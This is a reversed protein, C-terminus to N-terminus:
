HRHGNAQWGEHQQAGLHRQCRQGDCVTGLAAGSQRCGCVCPVQGADWGAGHGPPLRPCPLAPIPLSLALVPPLLRQWGMRMRRVTPLLLLLIYLLEPLVQPWPSATPSKLSGACRLVACCKGMWGCVVWPQGSGAGSGGPASVTPQPKHLVRPPLALGSPLHHVAAAAPVAGAAHAGAASPHASLPHCWTLRAVGAPSGLCTTFCAPTCCCMGGARCGTALELRVWSHDHRVALRMTTNMRRLSGSRQMRPGSAAAQAADANAAAHQWRLVYVAAINALIHLISVIGMFTQMHLACARMCNTYPIPMAGFTRMLQLWHLLRVGEWGARVWSSGKRLKEATHLSDPTSVGYVLSAIAIGMIPGFIIVQPPPLCPARPMPVPCPCPAHPPVPASIGRTSRLCLAGMRCTQRLLGSAAPLRISLRPLKRTGQRPWERLCQGEGPCHAPARGREVPPLRPAAEDRQPREQLLLGVPHLSGRHQHRVWGAPTPTSSYLPTAFSHAPSTCCEIGRVLRPHCTVAGREM